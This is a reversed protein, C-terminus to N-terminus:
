RLLCRPSTPIPLVSWAPAVGLMTGSLQSSPAALLEKPPDALSAETAFAFPYLSAEVTVSQMETSDTTVVAWTKIGLPLVADPDVIRMYYKERGSEKHRTDCVCWRRSPLCLLWKNPDDRKRWLPKENYLSHQLEFFGNIWTNSGTVGSVRLTRPPEHRAEPICSGLSPTAPRAATQRLGSMWSPPPTTSRAPVIRRVLQRPPPTLSRPAPAGYWRYTPPPSTVPQPGRSALRPSLLPMGLVLSGPVSHMETRADQPRLPLQRTVLEPRAQASSQRVAALAAGM